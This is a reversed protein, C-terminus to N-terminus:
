PYIQCDSNEGTSERGEGMIVVTQKRRHGLGGVLYRNNLSHDKEERNLVQGGRWRSFRRVKDLM